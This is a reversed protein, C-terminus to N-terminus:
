APRSAVCCYYCLLNILFGVSWAAVITVFKNLKRAGNRSNRPTGGVSMLQGALEVAAPRGEVAIRDSTPRVNRVTPAM